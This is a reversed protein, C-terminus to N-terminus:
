EAIARSAEQVQFGQQDITLVQVQWHPHQIRAQTVFRQLRKADASIALMTSGAGSIVVPINLTAGLAKVDAFGAILKARYPEQMKDQLAAQLMAKDGRELATCALTCHGMQYSAQAYSMQTPLVARAEATSLPTDPIVVAFHWSSHVQYHAVVPEADVMITAALQGFIAPAVNDPHGEMATALRLLDLRELPQGFWRNAGALGAVICAASSGLGRAAPIECAVDLHVGPVPQDLAECGRVFAQYILNDANQFRPDGGTILVGSAHASFTVTMSMSLALGMVDYGVGLNASTAPVTIKFM